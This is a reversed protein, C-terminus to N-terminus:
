PPDTLNHADVASSRNSKVKIWHGLKWNITKYTSMNKSFRGSHRTVVPSTSQTSFFTEPKTNSDANGEFGFMEEFRLKEYIHNQRMLSLHSLSGTKGSPLLSGLVVLSGGELWM